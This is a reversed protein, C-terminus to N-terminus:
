DNNSYAEPIGNVHGKTKNKKWAGLPKKTPQYIPMSIWGHFHRDRQKAYKGRLWTRPIEKNIDAFVRYFKNDSKCLALIPVAEGKKHNFGPAESMPRLEDIIIQNDKQTTM